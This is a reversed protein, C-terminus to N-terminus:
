KCYHDNSLHSTLMSKLDIIDTCHNISQRLEAGGPLGKTYFCTHARIEKIVVSERKFELAFDIHQLVTRLIEQHSIPVFSGTQQFSKIQEFIWPKGLAGRGIMISDCGTEEFMRIADAPSKVDGNGILPIGIHTKLSRIHDWNSLGSFMQKTTRAHLCAADAGSDEVMKGFDLYNLENNDWGSRFKVSLPVRGAIAKVVESIIQSALKPEKMLASGAGRRIVKKVPCGMNIDIFDPQFTLVFEAAKAMTYPDNGFIQVGFPREEEKFDLYQITRKSDRILGDSSVMESVLVDAHRTNCIRRFAQDTYGALPALWLKNAFISM